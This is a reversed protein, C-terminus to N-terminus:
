QEYIEAYGGSMIVNSLCLLALFGKAFLSLWMYAIEGRYYQSPPRLTVVLQVLGFSWFILLEGFVIGYVFGPMKREEGSADTVSATATDFFTAMVIAWAFVQPIYGILHAQLRWLTSGAWEDESAPRCIVEHLHGFTMTIFTLGFLLVMTNMFVSGAIYALLLVMVSASFSYEVWRFPAYAQELCREYRKRWLVGNGLHFLASLLSFSAVMWTLYLWGVRHPVEPAYAWARTNNPLIKLGLKSSYVPVRLSLKGVALAIVGFALHFVFMALNWRKLRASPVPLSVEHASSAKM